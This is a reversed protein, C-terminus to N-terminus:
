LRGTSILKSPKGHPGGVRSKHKESEKRTFPVRRADQAEGTAELRASRKTQREKPRARNRQGEM